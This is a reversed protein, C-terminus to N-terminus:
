ISELMIPVLNQLYHHHKPRGNHLGDGGELSGKCEVGRGWKGM